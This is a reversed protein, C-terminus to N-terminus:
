AAPCRLAAACYAGGCDAPRCWARVELSAIQARLAEVEAAVGNTAAPASMQAVQTSVLGRGPLLKRAFRASSSATRVALQGLRKSAIM